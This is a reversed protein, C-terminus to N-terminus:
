IKEALHRLKSYFRNRREVLAEETYDKATELNKRSMEELESPNKLLRIIEAAFEKSSDPSFLYRSDLLEPIGGVPTSLCPLGAAMAEILSRPLGESRTPFVFLDAKALRQIIKLKGFLRGLFNIKNGIGLEEAYSMLEKVYGGEGIFSASVNYGNDILIRTIQIVTRHGKLDNGIKNATHIIELSEKPYCFEKPNMIESSTLEVSSYYDEFYEISEGDIRARSPYRHQLYNKTVYSVGNAKRVIHKLSHIILFRLIGKRITSSIPDNVVEVAFPKRGIRGLFYTLFSEFQAARFIYCDCGDCAGRFKKILPIIQRLAERLNEFWPLEYIEIRDDDIISYIGSEVSKIHKVKSVFRVEDFVKLYRRIFGADYVGVSYYKGDPTKYLHSNAVVLVKM